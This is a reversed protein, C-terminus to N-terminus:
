EFYGDSKRAINLTGEGGGIGRRIATEEGPEVSGDSSREILLSIM